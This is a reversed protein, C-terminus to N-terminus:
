EPTKVQQSSRPGTRQRAPALGPPGGEALEMRAAEVGGTSRAASVRLEFERSREIYDECASCKGLRAEMTIGPTPLSIAQPKMDHSLVDLDSLMDAFFARLAPNFEVNLPIAVLDGNMSVARPQFM